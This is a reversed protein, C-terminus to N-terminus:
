RVSGGQYDRARQPVEDPSAGAAVWQWLEDELDKPLSRQILEMGRSVGCAELAQAVELGTIQEVQKTM